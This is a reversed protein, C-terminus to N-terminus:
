QLLPSWAPDTGDLPTLVERENYGTLDITYLKTTFRGQSDARSQRYFSLVRGNPSWTPGEVHFGEALMREGSGDPRMVGIYFTGRNIRTFAILDGRPSWVPTGYAGKNFSIRKVDSGDRRMTYLQQSGGRDSNFVIYQGDPSPSPSTDIAPNNTLRQIRRTPLDMAFIDTNGNEAMSMLVTDGDPTFRPAFTMGRFNGLVEQQGTNLNLLYVRPQGGEYSLYTIEQRNPSFRPTFVDARGDTLFKHDFGDQDMIALRRRRNDQTGSESVYVVRTNFYGDEGTLRKYIQDSAYHAIRRWATKVNELAFGIMQNEAFVDILRIEVRLRGDAQLIARGTVLAQANILRWDGYRVGAQLSASDQIFANKNIPKFLGSRELNDAIVKAIDSGILQEDPQSGAFDTVAIPLPAVYGRTIDVNLEARASGAPLLAGVAMLAVAMVFLALNRVIM